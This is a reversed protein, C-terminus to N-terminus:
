ATATVPITTDGTTIKDCNVVVQGDAIIVVVQALWSNLEVLGATKTLTAEPANTGQPDQLTAGTATLTVTIDGPEDSTLALGSAVSSGATGTYSEPKTSLTTTYTPAAPTVVTSITVSGGAIKDCTMVVSGSADGLVVTATGLWTNINDLTDTKTISAQAGAGNDKFTVNTGTFTVTFSGAETGGLVIGVAQEAGANGTYNEPKTPVQVTANAAETADVLGFYDTLSPPTVVVTHDYMVAGAEQVNEYSPTLAEIDLDMSEVESLKVWEGTSDDGGTPNYTYLAGGQEVTPDGTADIVFVLDQWQAEPLEDRATIDAVYRVHARMVEPLKELRIIGNEDVFDSLYTQVIKGDQVVKLLVDDIKTDAGLVVFGNAAHQYAGDPGAFSTELTDRMNKTLPAIKTDIIPELDGCNTTGDSLYIKGAETKILVNATPFPRSEFTTWDADSVSMLKTIGPLDNLKSASGATVAM